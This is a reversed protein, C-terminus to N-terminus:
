RIERTTNMATEVSPGALPPMAVCAFPEGEAIAQYKGTGAALIHTGCVMKPQSKDIQRIDFSSFVKDGASDTMECISSLADNGDVFRQVSICRAPITELSAATELRTVDSSFLPRLVIHAVYATSANKEIPQASLMGPALAILVGALLTTKAMGPVPLLRIYRM